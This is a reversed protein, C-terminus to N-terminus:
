IRRTPAAPEGALKAGVAFMGQRHTTQGFESSVDGIRVRADVAYSQDEPLKLSIEGISATAEIDGSVNTVEVEGIGHKILLASQRPVKILYDLNLNTKGRFMRAPTWSPYATNIVMMSTEGVPEMTVKFRELGKAAKALDKPEYKKQTRKTVTLEVEEKDWGEVKVSGFSDVIQITGKAGFELTQTTKIEAERKTVTQAQVPLSFALCCGFLLLALTMQRKSRM